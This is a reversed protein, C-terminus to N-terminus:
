PRHSGQKSDEIDKITELCRQIVRTIDDKCILEFRRLESLEDLFGRLDLLKDELGIIDDYKLPEKPSPSKWGLALKAKEIDEPTLTM